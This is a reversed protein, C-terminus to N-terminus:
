VEALVIRKGTRDLFALAERQAEPTFGAAFIYGQPQGTREIVVGFERVVDADVTAGRRQLVPTFGAAAQEATQGARHDWISM